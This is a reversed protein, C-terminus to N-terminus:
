NNRKNGKLKWTNSDTLYFFRDQMTKSHSGTILGLYHIKHERSYNTARVIDMVYRGDKHLLFNQLGEDPLYSSLEYKEDDYSSTHPKKHQREPLQDEHHIPDLNPPTGTTSRIVRTKATTPVPSTTSTTPLVTTPEM